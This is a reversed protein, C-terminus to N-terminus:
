SMVESPEPTLEMSTSLSFKELYGDAGTDPLLFHVM